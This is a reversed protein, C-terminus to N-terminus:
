EQNPSCDDVLIEQQGLESLRLLLYIIGFPTLPPVFFAYPITGELNIGDKETASPKLADPFGEPFGRDIETQIMTLIEELNPINEPLSAQLAELDIQLEPPLAPTGCATNGSNGGLALSGAPASNIGAAIAQQTREAIDQVSRIQQFTQRSIDKVLKSIIVHPETLEVVGKLIYKPTEQLMKNLFSNGLGAIPTLARNAGSLLTNELASLDCASEEDGFAAQLALLLTHKTDGFIDTYAFLDYYTKIEGAIYLYRLIGSLDIPGEEGILNELSSGLQSILSDKNSEFLDNIYITGGQSSFNSLLEQDTLADSVNVSADYNTAIHWSTNGNHVKYFTNLSEVLPTDLAVDHFVVDSLDTDEPTIYVMRVNMKISPFIDELLRTLVTPGEEAPNLLSTEEQIVFDGGINSTQSPAIGLGTMLAEENEFQEFVEVIKNYAVRQYPEAQSNGNFFDVSSYVSPQGTPVSGDSNKKKLGMYFLDTRRITGVPDSIPTIVVAFSKSEAIVYTGKSRSDWYQADSRVQELTFGEEDVYGFIKKGIFQQANFFATKEADPASRKKISKIQITFSVDGASILGTQEVADGSYDASKLYNRASQEWGWDPLDNNEENLPGFLEVRVPNEVGISSGAETTLSDLGEQSVAKWWDRLLTYDSLSRPGSDDWNYANFQLYTVPSRENTGSLNYGTLYVPFEDDKIRRTIDVSSVIMNYLEIMKQFNLLYREQEQSPADLLTLNIPQTGVPVLEDFFSQIEDKIADELDDFDALATPSYDVEFYKEPVFSGYRLISETEKLLKQESVSGIFATENETTAEDSIYLDYVERGQDLYNYKTFYNLAADGSGVPVPANALAIQKMDAFQTGNYLYTEVVTNGKVGFFDEIKDRTSLLRKEFLYQVAISQLTTNNLSLNAITDENSNIFEQQDTPLPGSIPYVFAPANPEFSRDIVKRITIAAAQRLLEPLQSYPQTLIGAVDISPGTVQSILENVVEKANSLYDIGFKSTIFINKLILDVILVQIYLEVIALIGADRVPGVAFERDICSNDVFEQLASQKIGNVDLLDANSISGDECLKPFLNLSSFTEANFLDSNSIRYALSNILGFYFHPYLKKLSTDELLGENLTTSSENELYTFIKDTFDNVTNSIFGLALVATLPGMGEAIDLLGEKEQQQALSLPLSFIRLSDSAEDLSGWMSYVIDRGLGRRLYSSNLVLQSSFSYYKAAELAPDLSGSFLLSSDFNDEIAEYLTRTQPAVLFEQKAMIEKINKQLSQQAQATLANHISKFGDVSNQLVDPILNDFFQESGEPKEPEEPLTLFQLLSELEALKKQDAPDLPKPRLATSKFTGLDNVFVQQVTSVVSDILGTVSNNFSDVDALAPVIGAGCGMDPTDYLDGINELLEVIDQYPQTDEITCPDIDPIQQTLDNYVGECYSPDVLNGLCAFFSQIAEGDAFNVRLQPWSTDILNNAVQLVDSSAVNNFLDCLERATILPALETLYSELVASETMGVPIEFLDPSSIIFGFDVYCEYLPNLGELPDLFEDIIDQAPQSPAEDGLELCFEKILGAITEILSMVASLGARKLNERIQVQLQKNISIIPLKTPIEPLRFNVRPPQPEFPNIGPLFDPLAGNFGQKALLCELAAEILTTMNYKNLIAQVKDMEGTVNEITNAIGELRKQLTQNIERIEKNAEEFAKVQVSRNNISNRINQIDSESAALPGWPGDDAKKNAKSAETETSPKGYFNVEIGSNPLYNALFQTWNIKMRRDFLIQQMNSVLENVYPNNGEKKTEFYYKFGRVLPTNAINTKGVKQLIVGEVTYDDAFKVGVREYDTVNFGNFQVFDQLNSFFLGIKDALDLFNIRPFIAGNFFKLQQQYVPFLTNIDKTFKDIQKSTMLNQVLYGTTTGMADPADEVAEKPVGVQLIPSSLARAPFFIDTPVSAVPLTSGQVKGYFDLILSVARDKDAPTLYASDQLGRDVVSSYVNIFITTDNEYPKEIRRSHWNLRNTITM